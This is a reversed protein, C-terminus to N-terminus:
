PLMCRPSGGVGVTLAQAPQSASTVTYTGDPLAPLLCDYKKIGCVAPCSTMPDFCMVGVLALGITMGGDYRVVCSVTGTDCASTCDDQLQLKVDINAARGSDPVCFTGGVDRPNCQTQPASSCAAVILIVPGWRIM